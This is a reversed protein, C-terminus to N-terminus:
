TPVDVPGCGHDQSIQDLLDEKLKVRRAAEAPTDTPRPRTAVDVFRALTKDTHLIAECVERKVQEKREISERELRAITQDQQHRDVTMSIVLVLSLVIYGIVPKIREWFTRQHPAGPIGQEGREGQRGTEGRQGYHGERGRLGPTGRRDNM